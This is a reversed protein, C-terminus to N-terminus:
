LRKRIPDENCEECQPYDIDDHDQVYEGCHICIVEYEDCTFYLKKIHDCCDHDKVFVQLCHPLNVDDFLFGSTYDVDSLVEGLHEKQRKSLKKKSFVLRWKECETCQVM